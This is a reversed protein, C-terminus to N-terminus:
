LWCLPRASSPMCSNYDTSELTLRIYATDTRFMYHRPVLGITKLRQTRTLSMTGQAEDLLSKLELTESPLLFRYKYNFGWTIRFTISQTSWESSSVSCRSIYCLFSTDDRLQCITKIYISLIHLLSTTLFISFTPFPTGELYIKSNCTIESIDSVM